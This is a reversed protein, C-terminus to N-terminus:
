KKGTAKASPKQRKKQQQKNTQEQQQAQLKAQQQPRTKEAEEAYTRIVTERLQEIRPEAETVAAPIHQGTYPNIRDRVAPFLESDVLSILCYRSRSYLM